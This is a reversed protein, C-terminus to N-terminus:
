PWSSRSVRCVTARSRARDVDRAGHEPRVRSLGRARPCAVRTSDGADRGCRRARETPLHQGAAGAADAARRAGAPSADGRGGQDPEGPHRDRVPLLLHRRHLHQVRRDDWPHLNFYRLDDVTEFTESPYHTIYADRFLWSVPLHKSCLSDCLGCRSCITAKIEDIIPDSRTTRRELVGRAADHGARANDEAEEVSSTGPVVCSVEPHRLIDRLVEAATLKPPAASFAARPPFSKSECLLGGALPKM